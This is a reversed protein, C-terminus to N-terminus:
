INKGFPMLNVTLILSTSGDGDTINPRFAGYLRMDPTQTTPIDTFPSGTLWYTPSESVGFEFALAGDSGKVGTISFGTISWQAIPLVEGTDGNELDEWRVTLGRPTLQSLIFPKVAM